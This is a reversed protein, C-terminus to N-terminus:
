RLVPRDGCRCPHMDRRATDPSEPAQKCGSLVVLLLAVTLVAGFGYLLGTRDRRRRHSM